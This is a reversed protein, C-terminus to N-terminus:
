PWRNKLTFTQLLETRWNEGFHIRLNSCDKGTLVLLDSVVMVDLSLIKGDSNEFKVIRSDIM